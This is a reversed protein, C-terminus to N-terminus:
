SEAPRPKMARLLSRSKPADAAPFLEAQLDRALKSIAKSAHARPNHSHLPEGNNLSRPVAVDSPLEAAIPRQLAKAVESTPFGVKSDARNLVIRVKGTDIHLSELASLALKANKVAPLDLSTVLFALDCAELAALAHQDLGPATDVIVLEATTRLARISRGVVAGDLRQPTLPDTASALVRLGSPHLSLVGALASEDLEGTIGAIEGLTREPRLRLSAACDGYSVDADVLATHIKAEAALVALNTALVTKGTGGKPGFVVVVRGSRRTESHRQAVIETEVMAHARIVASPLEREGDEVAVVDRIGHRMANKLTVADAADAVLVFATGPYDRGAALSQQLDSESADPGLVVVSRAHLAINRKVDSWDASARVAFNGHRRLIEKLISAIHPDTDFIVVNTM